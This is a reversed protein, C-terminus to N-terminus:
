TCYVLLPDPVISLASYDQLLHLYTMLKFHPYTKKGKVRFDDTENGRLAIREGTGQLEITAAAGKFLDYSATWEKMVKREIERENNRSERAASAIM